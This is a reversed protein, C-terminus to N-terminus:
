NGTARDAVCEEFATGSTAGTEQECEEAVSVLFNFLVLILIGGIVALAGLVIGAISMGKGVPRRRLGLIGFIVALVGLALGLFPVWCTVLGIIGLVLAAIALGNSKAPPPPESYGGMGYGAQPYGPQGAGPQQPYGQQDYGSQGYAPPQGYSPASGAQGYSPTSGYGSSGQGYARDGSGRNSDPTDGTPPDSPHSM